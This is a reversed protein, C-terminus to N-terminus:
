PMGSFTVVLLRRSLNILDIMNISAAWTQKGNLLYDELIILMSGNTVANEDYRWSGHSFCNRLHRFNTLDPDNNDANVYDCQTVTLRSAPMWDHVTKKQEDELAAPLRGEAKLQQTLIVTTTVFGIAAGFAYLKPTPAFAELALDHMQQFTRKVNTDTAIMM